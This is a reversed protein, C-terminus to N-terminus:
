GRAAKAECLIHGAGSALIVKIDLGAEERRILKAQENRIWDMTGCVRMIDVLSLGKGYM